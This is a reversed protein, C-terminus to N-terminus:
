PLVSILDLCKNIIRALAQQKKLLCLPEYFGNDGVVCFSTEYSAPVKIFHIHRLKSDYGHVVAGKVSWLLINRKDNRCFSKPSLGLNVDLTTYPPYFRGM